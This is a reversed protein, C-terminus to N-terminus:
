AISYRTASDRGAACIGSDRKKRTRYENSTVSAKVRQWASCLFEPSNAIGRYYSAVGPHSHTTKIDQFIAKVEDSAESESVMPLKRTGPAVGYPLPASTHPVPVLGLELCTTILVLKPLVYHISDTFAQIDELAGIEPWDVRATPADDLIAMARLEDSLQEFAYTGIGPALAHWISDFYDPWNALVRFLYNNFPVRLTAQISEYICQIQPSAKDPTVDALSPLLAEGAALRQSLSKEMANISLEM